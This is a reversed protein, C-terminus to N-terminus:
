LLEFVGGGCDSDTFAKEFVVYSNGFIVVFRIYLFVKQHRGKETNQFL